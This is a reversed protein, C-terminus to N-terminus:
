KHIVENELLYKKNYELQICLYNLYEFVECFPEFFINVVNDFFSLENERFKKDDNGVCNIQKTEDLSHVEKSQECFEILEKDAWTIFYDFNKTSGSIDAGHLFCGFIMLKIDDIIQNNLKIDNSKIIDKYLKMDEAHKKNLSNDTGYIVLKMIKYFREKQYKNLSELLDMSEILKKAEAFHYYELKYEYDKLIKSFPVKDKYTLYFNNDRGTHKFDHCAASIILAFIDLDNYKINSIFELEENEKVYTDTFLLPLNKKSKSLYIYINQVVETAHFLNHYPNIEPYSNSNYEKALKVLFDSLKNKNVIQNKVNKGLLDNLVYDTLKYIILTKNEFQESYKFVNFNENNPFMEEGEINAFVFIKISILSLLLYYFFYKM